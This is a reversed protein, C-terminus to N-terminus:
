STRGTDQRASRASQLLGVALCAGVGEGARLRLDLLPELGLETLVLGHAAERSRHGAVLHAAVAPEVRV